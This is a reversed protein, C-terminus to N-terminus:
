AVLYVFFFPFMCFISVFEVDATGILYGWSLVGCGKESIM